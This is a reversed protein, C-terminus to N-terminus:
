KNLTLLLFVVSLCSINKFNVICVGSLRQKCRESINITLKCCIEYRKRDRNKVKLLYRNTAIKHDTVELICNLPVESKYVNYSCLKPLLSINFFFSFHRCMKYPNLWFQTKVKKWFFIWNRTRRSDVFSEWIIQKSLSKKWNNYIIFSFCLNYLFLFLYLLAFTKTILTRACKRGAAAM